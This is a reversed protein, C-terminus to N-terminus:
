SGPDFLLVPSLHQEDESPPSSLLLLTHQAPRGVTHWRRFFNLPPEFSSIIHGNLFAVRNRIRRVRSGYCIPLVLTFPLSELTFKSIFHFFIRMQFFLFHGHPRFHLRCYFAPNMLHSIETPIIRNARSRVCYVRSLTVTVSPLSIFCCPQLALRGNRHIVVHALREEVGTVLRSLDNAFTGIANSPM